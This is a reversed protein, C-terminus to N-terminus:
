LQIKLNKFIIEQMVPFLIVDFFLFYHAHM